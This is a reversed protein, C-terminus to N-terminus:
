NNEQMARCDEMFQNLLYMCWNYQTGEKAQVALDIAGIPVENPCCKRLVWGALLQVTFGLDQDQIDASDYARMGKTLKHEKTIKVAHKRDLKKDDFHAKPDAGVKSLGTIRHIVDVNMDIKRELWLYGEHVCSLLVKVVVNLEPSRGFHPIQLLNLLGSPVLKEIWEHPVFVEAQTIPNVRKCM